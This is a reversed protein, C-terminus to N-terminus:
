DQHPIGSARHGIGSARNSSEFKSKAQHLRVLLNQRRGEVKM